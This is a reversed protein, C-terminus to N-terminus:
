SILENTSIPEDDGVHYVGGINKVILQGGASTISLAFRVSTTLLVWHGHFVRQEGRLLM